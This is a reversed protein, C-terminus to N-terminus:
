IMTIAIVVLIGVIAIGALGALILPRLQAIAEAAADGPSQQGANRMQRALGEMAERQSTSAAEIRSEVGALREDLAAIGPDAVSLGAVADRTSAVAAEISSLRENSAATIRDLQAALEPSATSPAEFSAALQKLDSRLAEYQTGVQQDVADLRERAEQLTELRDGRRGAEIWDLLDDLFELTAKLRLLDRQACRGVTEDAANYSAAILLAGTRFLVPVPGSEGRTHFDREIINVFERYSAPTLIEADSISPMKGHLGALVADVREADHSARRLLRREYPQMSLEVCTMGANFIRDDREVTSDAPILGHETLFSRLRDGSNSNSRSDDRRTEQPEM